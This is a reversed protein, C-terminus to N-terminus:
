PQADKIRYFRKPYSAANTDAFEASGSTGLTVTGIVTWTAFTPTAQIQYTHGVQGTVTLMVLASSATSIKVTSAITDEWPVTYGVENSFDSTLGNTGIATVAFYYTQGRVLGQVTLTLAMGSNTTISYAGAATGHHVQYHSLNAHDSSADWALTVTALSPPTAAHAGWPNALLLCAVLPTLLSAV